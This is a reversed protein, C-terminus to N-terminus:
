VDRLAEGATEPMTPAAIAGGSVADDPALALIKNQRRFVPYPVVATGPTDGGGGGPIFRPDDLVPAYFIEREGVLM